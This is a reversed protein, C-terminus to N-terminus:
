STWGAPLDGSAAESRVNRGGVIMSVSGQEAGPVVEVAARVIRILTDRPDDVQHLLRAM